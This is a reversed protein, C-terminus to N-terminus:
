YVPGHQALTVPRRDTVFLVQCETVGVRGLNEHEVQRSRCGTENFRRPRSECFSASMCLVRFSRGSVVRAFTMSSRSARSASAVSRCVCSLCACQFTLPGVKM